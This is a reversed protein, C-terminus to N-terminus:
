MSDQLNEWINWSFYNSKSNLHKMDADELRIQNQPLIDEPGKLHSGACSLQLHSTWSATLPGSGSWSGTLAPSQCSHQGPFPSVDCSPGTKIATSFLLLLAFVNKQLLVGMEANWLGENGGDLQHLVVQPARFLAFFFSVAVTLNLLELLLDAQSPLLDTAATQRGTCGGLVTLKM